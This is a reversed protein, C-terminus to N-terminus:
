LASTQLSTSTNSCVYASTHQRISVYASTHQRISVYAPPAQIGVVVEDVFKKPVVLAVLLVSKLLRFMWCVEGGRLGGEGCGHSVGGAGYWCADGESDFGDDADTHSLDADSHSLTEM